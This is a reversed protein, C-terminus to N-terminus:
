PTGFPNAPPNAPQEPAGFPNAPNAAEPAAGEIPAGVAGGGPAAPNAAAPAPQAQRVHEYRQQRRQERVRAAAIRAGTRYRELLLRHSGQVRELSKGVDYFRDVENAELNAGKTFDARADPERGLNLCTLGRFYYIRADRTGSQIAATLDNFARFYDGTFYAHAGRGFADEVAPDDGRVSPTASLCLIAVALTSAWRLSKGIIM